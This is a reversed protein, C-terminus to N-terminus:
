RRVSFRPKGSLTKGTSKNVFHLRGCSPCTVAEYADAGEGPQAEPVWVQVNSGTKPCFITVNAMLDPQADLPGGRQDTELSM